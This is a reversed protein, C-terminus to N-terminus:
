SAKAMIAFLSLGTKKARFLIQIKKIQEKTYLNLPFLYPDRDCQVCNTGELVIPLPEICQRCHGVLMPDFINKM